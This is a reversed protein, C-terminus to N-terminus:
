CDLLHVFSCDRVTLGDNMTITSKNIKLQMRETEKLANAVVNAVDWCKTYPCFDLLSLASGEETIAIFDIFIVVRVDFHKSYAILLLLCTVLLRKAIDANSKKIILDM